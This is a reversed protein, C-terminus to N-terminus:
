SGVFSASIYDIGGSEDDSIGIGTKLNRIDEDTLIPLPIKKGPVNIGKHPKLNGGAVIVCVANGSDVLLVKMEILGDNLFVQDGPKLIDILGPWNVSAKEKTGPFKEKSLTFQGGDALEVSDSALDGIRMDPGRSDFMIAIHTGFEKALRRVLRMRRLHDDLTGHSLNFRAVNMGYQIMGRLISEDDTSPGLTCVIKTRKSFIMTLLNYPPLLPSTM